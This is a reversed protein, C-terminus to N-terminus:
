DEEHAHRADIDYLHGWDMHIALKGNSVLHKLSLPQGLYFDDNLPMYWESLGPIKHLNCELARSNFTPYDGEPMITKPHVVDVRSLNFWAAPTETVVFVKRIKSRFFKQMSRLSFMLEGSDGSLATANGQQGDSSPRVMDEKDGSAQLKKWADAKAQKYESDSGNIYLYVLDISEPQEFTVSEQHQAGDNKLSAKQERLVEWWESGSYGPMGKANWLSGPGKWTEADEISKTLDAVSPKAASGKEADERNGHSAHTGEERMLARRGHGQLAFDQPILYAAVFVSLAYSVAMAPPGHFCHKSSLNM